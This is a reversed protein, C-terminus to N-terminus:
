SQLSRSGYIHPFIDLIIVVSSFCSTVQFWIHAAARSLSQQVLGLFGGHSQGVQNSRINIFLSPSSESWHMLDTQDHLSSWPFCIIIIRVLAYSRDTSLIVVDIPSTHNAVCISPVQFVLRHLFEEMYQPSFQFLKKTSPFVLCFDNGDVFLGSPPIPSDREASWHTGRSGAKPCSWWRGHM